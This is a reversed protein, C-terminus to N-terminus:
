QSPNRELFADVEHRYPMSSAAGHRTVSVAGAASAFTLAQALPKGEALAVALGACFADGAGVTDVVEVPYAANRGSGARTVWQAGEAGLTVIVTQDDTQLLAAAAQPVPMQGALLALEHENPTLYSVDALLAPPLPQAPAPNLMTRVGHQRALRLAHAVTDLNTELQALLFDASAIAAEASTIDAPSLADNAGLTVVIENQGSDEVFIVAVGTALQGDRQVYRADIGENKWLALGIEALTDQGIRGIFTVQAGLRAAAVAQNSGKGGPGTTFRKGSVTEGPTPLRTLYTVLDANFSGVVVIKAAM